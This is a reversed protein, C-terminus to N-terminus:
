NDTEQDPQKSNSFFIVIASVFAVAIYAPLVWQMIFDANEVRQAENLFPTALKNYAASFILFNSAFLLVFFLLVALFKKM